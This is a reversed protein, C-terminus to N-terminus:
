RLWIIQQNHTIPNSVIPAIVPRLEPVVITGDMTVAHGHLEPRDEQMMQLLGFNDDNAQVLTFGEHPLKHGFFRDFMADHVRM